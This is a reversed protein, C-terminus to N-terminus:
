MTFPLTSGEPRVPALRARDRGSPHLTEALMELSEILRPGPRSFHAGGDAVYMKGDKVARLGGFGPQAELHALDELTRPVDQGCCALVLVEPDAKRIEGWTLERSRDGPAALLELGGAMTVLDPTWHGSSFPPDIWELVVVPVPRKGEVRRHVRQVRMRYVNVLERASAEIGAARGLRVHDSMVDDFRHPHLSLVAPRNTLDPLCTLAQTKGVACVDCVDQTIVLDPRLRELLEVDLEYLPSGTTLSEKVARDIEPSKADMLIATSTVRPLHVVSPPFDCSHTVGVLAHELGLAAVMETASPILSM